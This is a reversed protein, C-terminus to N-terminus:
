FQIREVWVQQQSAGHHEGFLWVSDGDAIMAKVTGVTASSEAYAALKRGDDFLLVYQGSGVYLSDGGDSALMNLQTKLHEADPNLYTDRRPKGNAFEQLWLGRTPPFASDRHNNKILIAHGDGSPAVVIRNRGAVALSVASDRVRYKGEAEDMQRTSEGSLMVSQEVNELGLWMLGRDFAPLNAGTETGGVVYLRRESNVLPRIDTSGFQHADPKLRSAIGNEGVGLVDLILGAGGNASHFWNSSSIKEDDHVILGKTACRAM